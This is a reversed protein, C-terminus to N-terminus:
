YDGEFAIAKVEEFAREATEGDNILEDFCQALFDFAYGTKEAVDQIATAIEKMRHFKM